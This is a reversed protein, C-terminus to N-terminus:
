VHTKEWKGGYFRRYLVVARVLQDIVLCGWAGYLGLDLLAVAIYALGPRLIGFTFLSLRTCFRTDGCGRLCGGYVLQTVQLPLMVSLILLLIRADGIVKEDSSLLSRINLRLKNLVEEDVIGDSGVLNELLSYKGITALHTDSVDISRTGSANARIKYTM